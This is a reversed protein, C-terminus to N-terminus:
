LSELNCGLREDPNIQIMKNILDIADKSMINALIDPRPWQINRSKIDAYVKNPNTGKFPVAGVLMKFLINGLAWTDLSPSHNYGDIVEPSQYNVTGVFTDARM